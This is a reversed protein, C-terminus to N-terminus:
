AEAEVPRGTIFEQMSVGFTDKALKDEDEASLDVVVSEDRQPLIAVSRNLQALYSTLMRVKLKHDEVGELYTEVKFEADIASIQGILGGLEGAHQTEVMQSLLGKLERVEDALGENARAGEAGAKLTAYEEDSVVVYKDKPDGPVVTFGEGLATAIANIRDEADDGEIHEALKAKLQEVFKCEDPMSLRVEKGKGQEALKCAPRDIGIAVREGVIKLADMQDNVWVKAEMSQGMPYDGQQIQEIVEPDFVYGRNRICEGDFWAVSNFGKVAERSRGFHGHVLQSGNFTPAAEQMVDPWDARYNIEHGDVGKWTGPCLVTGEYVYVDGHQEFSDITGGFELMIVQESM